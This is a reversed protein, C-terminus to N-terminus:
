GGGKDDKHYDNPVEFFYSDDWNLGRKKALKRIKLMASYPFHGWSEWRSANVRNAGIERAFDSITSCRFVALRVYRVPNSKKAM